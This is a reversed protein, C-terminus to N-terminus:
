SAWGGAVTLDTGTTYSAQDSCLFAVAEAVEEPTGARGFPIRLARAPDLTDDAAHAHPVLGPSVVNVRVGHAAEELAWSRALVLLASKAAGYAAVERRGRLGELGACGFLVVNGRTRRLASRAAGVLLFASEVNSQLLRRLDALSLQELPGSAYEGVAHIVHDLQGDLELVEAILRQADREVSLDARHIRPAFEPELARALEHSSRYVIHVLEGRARLRRAVALGIGRVSGTVLTIKQQLRPDRNEM